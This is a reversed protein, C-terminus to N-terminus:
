FTGDNRHTISVPSPAPIAIRLSQRPCIVAGRLEQMAEMRAHEAEIRAFSAQECDIVTQVSALRTQVRDLTSQTRAFRSEGKDLIMEAMGMLGSARGPLEEFVAQSRSALCRVDGQFTAAFHNGVLLALVGVGAWYRAKESAM